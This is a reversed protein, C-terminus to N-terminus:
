YHENDVPHTLYDMAMSSYVAQPTVARALEARARTAVEGDAEGAHEALNLVDQYARLKKLLSLRHRKLEGRDLKLIDITVRGIETLGYPTSGNFRIHDRPDDPGAPDLLLPRERPLPDGPGTLRQMEDM